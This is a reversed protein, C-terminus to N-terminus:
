SQFDQSDAATTDYANKLNDQALDNIIDTHAKPIANNMEPVAKRYSNQPVAKGKIKNSKAKNEAASRKQKENKM